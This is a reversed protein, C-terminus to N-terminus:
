AAARVKDSLSSRWRPVPRLGNLYHLQPLHPHKASPATSERFDGMLARLQRISLGTEEHMSILLAASVPTRRKRIKCIQSPQGFLKDALHRDNRVGLMTTLTDLLTEPDYHPNDAEVAKQTFTYM